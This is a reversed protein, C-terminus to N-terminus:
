SRKSAIESPKNNSEAYTSLFEEAYQAFTEAEAEKRGYTGDALAERIDREHQEAGRRTQVPSVKRVRQTRGNAHKFVFDVCWFERSAGTAPDRRKERRVSM